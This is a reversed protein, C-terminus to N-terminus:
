LKVHGSGNPRLIFTKTNDTIVQSSNVSMTYQPAHDFIRAIALENLIRRAINTHVHPTVDRELNYSGYFYKTIDRGRNQAIL